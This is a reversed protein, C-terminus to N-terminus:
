SYDIQGIKFAISEDAHKIACRLGQLDCTEANSEDCSVCGEKLLVCTWHNRQENSGSRIDGDCQDAITEYLHRVYQKDHSPKPNRLVYLIESKIVPNRPPTVVIGSYIAEESQDMATYWTQPKSADFVSGINKQFDTKVDFYYGGHVYLWCYCWLEAKHATTKFQDFTDLASQGFYELLYLRCMEDTHIQVEFGKCHRNINELTSVPISDTDRHMFVVTPPIWLADPSPRVLPDTQRSYHKRSVSSNSQCMYKVCNNMSQDFVVSDRHKSNNIVISFMIPGTTCLVRKKASTSNHLHVFTSYPRTRLSHVNDVARDLIERMIPARPRAYLYWQQYEGGDFLHTQARWQSTIMDKDDPIEPLPATACSKMDLYLGGLCYMVAYRLLDTRAAGYVPNILHYARTVRHDKGFHSHLFVMAEEDGYVTQRWGPLAKRTLDLPKNSATRGGCEGTPESTCWFRHVVKPVPLKDDSMVVPSSTTSAAVKLFLTYDAPLTRTKIIIRQRLCCCCIVATMAIAVAICM